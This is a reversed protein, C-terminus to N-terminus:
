SRWQYTAAGRHHRARVTSNSGRSISQDWAGGTDARDDRGSRDWRGCGGECRGPRRGIHGGLVGFGLGLGDNVGEWAVAQHGLGGDEGGTSTEGDGSDAILEVDEVLLGDGCETKEADESTYALHGTGHVLLPGLGLDLLLFIDEVASSCVVGVGNLLSDLVDLM